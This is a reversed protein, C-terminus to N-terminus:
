KEAYFKNNSDNALTMNMVVLLKRFQNESLIVKANTLSFNVAKESAKKVDNGKSKAANIKNLSESFVYELDDSQKFDADLYRVVAKQTSKDNLKEILSEHGGAFVSAGFAMVAFGLVFLRKM